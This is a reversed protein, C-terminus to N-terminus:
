IGIYRNYWSLNIESVGDIVGGAEVHIQNVGGPAIPHCELRFEALDSDESIYALLNNGLDDIVTKRGPTLDITVTRGGTISAYYQIQLGLTENRVLPAELPGVLEITPWERWTGGYTLNYDVVIADIPGWIIFPDIPFVLEPEIDAFNYGSGAPDFLVPNYAILRVVDQYGWEQWTSPDTQGFVPGELVYTEIDRISGDPQVKRLYGPLSTASRNPRFIDLIASRLDWYEQRGCGTWHAVLDITRPRLRYGQATEGHQYPGRTTQWEIPPMGLGGVGGPLARIRFDALTHTEGDPTIYYDWEIQEIDTM